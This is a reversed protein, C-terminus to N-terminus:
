WNRHGKSNPKSSSFSCHLQFHSTLPHLAVWALEVMLVLLVCIASFYKDLKSDVVVVVVVVDVVVVVVLEVVVVGEGVVVETAGSGVVAFGPSAVVVLGAPTRLFLDTSLRFMSDLPTTEPMILLSVLM